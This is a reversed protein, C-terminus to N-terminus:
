PNYIAQTSNYISLVDGASLATNYLLVQGIAGNYFDAPLNYATNANYQGGIVFPWHQNDTITGSLSTSNALTGNKYLSLTSGDYTLTVNTWTGYSFTTSIDTNSTASGATVRAIISNGNTYFQYSQFEQPSPSTRFGKGALIMVASTSTNFWISLTVQSTLDAWPTGGAILSFVASNGILLSSRTFSFYAPTGASPVFSPASVGYGSLTAVRSYESIDYWSAGSGPYSSANQADMNLLLNSPSGQKFYIPM